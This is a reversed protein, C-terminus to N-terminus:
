LEIIDNGAVSRREVFNLVVGAPDLLTFALEGNPFREPKGLPEFGRSRIQEYVAAVDEVEVAFCLGRALSAHQFVPLRQPPDPRLFGVEWEGVALHVYWDSKFLVRADFARRYFELCEAPALTTIIPYLNVTM